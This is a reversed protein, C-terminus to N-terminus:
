PVWNKLAYTATISTLFGIPNPTISKKDTKHWTSVHDTGAMTAPDNVLVETLHIPAHNSKEKRITQTTSKESNISM